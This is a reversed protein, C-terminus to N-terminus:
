EEPDGVVAFKLSVSLHTIARSGSLTNRDFDIALAAKKGLAFSVGVGWTPATYRDVVTEGDTTERSDVFQVGGSAYPVFRLNEKFDWGALRLLSIKAYKFESTRVRTVQSTEGSELKSRADNYSYEMEYRFRNRAKEDATVASVGLTPGWDYSRSNAERSSNGAAGISVAEFEFATGFLNVTPAAETSADVADAEARVASPLCLLVAAILARTM